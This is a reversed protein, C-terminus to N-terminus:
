ATPRPSTSGWSGASPSWRPTSTWAGPPSAPRAASSSSNAAAAASTWCRRRRASRLQFHPLYVSQRRKIEDRTGRHLDEFALYAAGRSAARAAAVERVAGPLLRGARSQDEVIRQLRALLAETQANGAFLRRELATLRAEVDDFRDESQELRLRLATLQSVLLSQLTSWSTTSDTQRALAVNLYPRTLRHMLRKLGM